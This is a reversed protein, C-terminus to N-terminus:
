EQLALKRREASGGSRNASLIRSAIECQHLSSGDMGHAIGLLTFFRDELGREFQGRILAGRKQVLGAAAVSTQATSHFNQETSEVARAAEHPSRRSGLPCPAERQRGGFPGAVSDAAVFEEFLDAFATTADNVDGLLAEIRQRLDVDDACTQNLYADRQDAPLRLAAEFLTEERQETSM